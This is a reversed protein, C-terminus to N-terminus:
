LLPDAISTNLFEFESTEAVHPITVSINHVYVLLRLKTARKIMDRTGNSKGDWIALLADAYLYLTM